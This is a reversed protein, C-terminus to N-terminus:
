NAGLGRVVGCWVVGCMVCWVGCVVRWVGYVVGWLVRCVCARACEFVRLCVCSCGVCVVVVVVVMGYGKRSWIIGAPSIIGGPLIIGALGSSLPM